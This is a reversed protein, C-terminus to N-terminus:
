VSPTTNPKPPPSAYQPKLTGQKDLLWADVKRVVPGAVRGGAEGNEIMVSIVIHPDEAPAVEVFRTNDRNREATKLRNYREGQKIAVVQATGSKGAIRYQAGTASARAIGRTDHMVLQM